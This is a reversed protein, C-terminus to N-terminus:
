HGVGTGDTVIVHFSNWAPLDTYVVQLQTPLVVADYLLAWNECARRFALRNAHYQRNMDETSRKAVGAIVQDNIKLLAMTFNGQRQFAVCAGQLMMSQVPTVKLRSILHAQENNISQFNLLQPQNFM